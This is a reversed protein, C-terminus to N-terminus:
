HLLTNKSSSSPFHTKLKMKKLRASGVKLLSGGTCGPEELSSGEEGVEERRQRGSSVSEISQMCSMGATHTACGKKKKKKKVADGVACLAGLAWCGLPAEVKMAGDDGDLLEAWIPTSPHPPGALIVKFAESFDRNLPLNLNGRTVLCVWMGTFDLPLTPM